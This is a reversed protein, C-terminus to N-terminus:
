FNFTYYEDCKGCIAPLEGRIHDLYILKGNGWITELDDSFVNGQKHECKLDERCLPVDGNIRIFMDRKLHWCPNRTLPSLDTIKKQEYIGCFWDYKQIIINETKNRWFRFFDELNEENEEM